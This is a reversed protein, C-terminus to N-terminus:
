SHSFVKEFEEIIYTEGEDEDESTKYHIKHTLADIKAEFSVGDCDGKIIYEHGDGPYVEFSETGLDYLTVFARKIIERFREYKESIERLKDEPLINSM